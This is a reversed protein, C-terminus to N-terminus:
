MLTFVAKSLGLTRFLDKLKLSELTLLTHCTQLCSHRGFGQASLKLQAKIQMNSFM